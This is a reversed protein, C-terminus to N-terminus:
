KIRYNNKKVFYTNRIDGKANVSLKINTRYEKEGNGIKLNNSIKNVEEVIKKYVENYTEIENYKIQNTEMSEYWIRKPFYLQLGMTNETYNQNNNIQYLKKDDAICLAFFDIGADPKTWNHIKYWHKDKKDMFKENYNCIKLDHTLGIPLFNFTKWDNEWIFKYNSILKEYFIKYKNMFETHETEIYNESVRTSNIVLHFPKLIKELENPTLIFRYYITGETYFNM